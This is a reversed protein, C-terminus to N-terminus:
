ILEIFNFQAWPVEISIAEGNNSVQVVEALYGRLKYEEAIELANLTPNAKKKYQYKSNDVNYDCESFENQGREYEYTSILDYDNDLMLKLRVSGHKNIWEKIEHFIKTEKDLMSNRKDIENELSDTAIAKNEENFLKVLEQLEDNETHESKIEAFYYKTSLKTNDSLEKTIKEWDQNIYITPAFSLNMPEELIKKSLIMEEKLHNDVNSVETEKEFKQSKEQIKIARSVDSVTSILFDIPFILKIILNDAEDFAGLKAINETIRDSTSFQRDRKQTGGEAIMLQRQFVESITYDVILM